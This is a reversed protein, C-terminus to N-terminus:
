KPVVSVLDLFDQVTHEWDFRDQVRQRLNEGVGRLEDFRRGYDAMARVLAEEDHEPVITGFSADQIVDRTSGRETTIVLKGYAGAELIVTPFGEPYSSPYVFIDLTRYFAPMASPELSGLYHIFPDEGALRAVEQELPGAGAILLSLRNREMGSSRRLKRFSSLVKLVGKEPILRGAYGFVIAEKEIGVDGRLTHGRLDVAATDVANRLVSNCRRGFAGEVFSTVAQSVGVCVTARRLVAGTALSDYIRAFGTLLSSPFRVYDSGHEIHLHRARFLAANMFMAITNIPFYRTNTVIWDPGWRKIARIRRVIEPSPLTIPFQGSLINWAPLRFVRIGDAEEESPARNTRNTVIWCEHGRAAVRSALEKAYREVGGLHPFYHGTFFAFRM